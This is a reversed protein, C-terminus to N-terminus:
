KESQEEETKKLVDRYYDRVNLIYKYIQLSPTEPDIHHNHINKAEEFVIDYKNRSVKVAIGGHSIFETCYKGFDDILISTQPNKVYKIKNETTYSFLRRSKPLEPFYKELWRIKDAKAYKSGKIISSLIYVRINKEKEKELLRKAAKLIHENPQLNYFFDKAFFEEYDKVEKFVALTGDMDFYIDFTKDKSM